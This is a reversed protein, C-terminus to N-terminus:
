QYAAKPFRSSVSHVLHRSLATNILDVKLCEWEDDQWAASDSSGYNSFIAESFTQHLRDDLM